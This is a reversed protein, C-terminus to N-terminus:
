SSSALAPWTLLPRVFERIRINSLPGYYRSDVSGPNYSSIAWFFGAPVRYMGQSYTPLQRGLSDVARATSNPLIVGNVAIGNADIVVTDGARAVIPKMLPAGGDDCSGRAAYGRSFATDGPALPPPCFTVLQARDASSVVYLGMPLSPTLNFRVGAYVAIIALWTAIAVTALIARFFFDLRKM